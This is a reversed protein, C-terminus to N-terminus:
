LLMIKLLFWVGTNTLYLFLMFYSKHWRHSYNFSMTSAYEIRM